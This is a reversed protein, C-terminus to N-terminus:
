TSKAIFKSHLLVKLLFHLSKQYYAKLHSRFDLYCFVNEYCVLKYRIPKTRCRNKFHSSILKRQTKVTLVATMRRFPIKSNTNLLARDVKYLARQRFNYPFAKWYFILADIFGLVPIMGSCEPVDRFMGSCSFILINKKIFFYNM